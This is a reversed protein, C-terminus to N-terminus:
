FIRLLTYRKAQSNSTHSMAVFLPSVLMPLDNRCWVQSDLLMSCVLQCSLQVPSIKFNYLMLM